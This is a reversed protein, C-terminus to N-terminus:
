GRFIFLPIDNTFLIKRSVSPAFIRSLINRKRTTLSVVNVKEEEIFKNLDSDVKPSNILKYAVNVQPYRKYFNSSIEKLENETWVEEKKGITNIHVFSLKMGPVDSFIDVLSQFFSLDRNQLNTLFAIHKIDSVKSIAADEPIALVPVNTIEIVDATVSGLINSKDNGKGKTGLVLLFPKYEKVFLDIEDEVKGERLSYSYNISPLEGDSIKKDIDLCLELMKKRTRNLVGDDPSERLTDAFPINTPFYMDHYVHLIKVKANAREAISFAMQCAKMSYSSFDVAVLIRNRGDDIAYTRQDDYRFIRNAEIFALAKSLDAERVEVYLSGTNDAVKRLQVEIGREELFLKLVNAKQPTHIALILFENNM